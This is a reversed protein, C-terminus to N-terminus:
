FRITRPKKTKGGFGGLFNVARTKKEEKKNKTKSEELVRTKIGQIEFTKAATIALGFARKRDTNASDPQKLEELLWYDNIEDVGHYIRKKQDTYMGDKDKRFSADREEKLYEIVYSDLDKQKKGTGDMYVGYDDATFNKTFDLSM